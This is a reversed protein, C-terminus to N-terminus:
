RTLITASGASQWLRVIHHDDLDKAQLIRLCYMLNLRNSVLMGNYAAEAALKRIASM